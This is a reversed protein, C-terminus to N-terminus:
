FTGRFRTSRKLFINEDSFLNTQMGDAYAMKSPLIMYNVGEVGNPIDWWLAATDDPEAGPKWQVSDRMILYKSYRTVWPSHDFLLGVLLKQRVREEVLSISARGKSKADIALLYKKKQIYRSFYPLADFRDAVIALNALNAVPPSAVGFDHGHLARFFDAALNQITSVKSIRGVNVISITPLADAPADAVNSHGALKLADLTASLKQGENFRDGLLNGFYRSNQQLVRSDVRYRFQPGGEDQCVELIM